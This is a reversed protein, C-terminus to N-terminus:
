SRRKVMVICMAAIVLIIIGALACIIIIPSGGSSPAPAPESLILDNGQKFLSCGEEPYSIVNWQVDGANKVVTGIEHAYLKLTLMKSDWNGGLDIVNAGQINVVGEILVKSLDADSNIRIGHGETFRLVAMSGDVSYASNTGAADVHQHVTALKFTGDFVLDSDM